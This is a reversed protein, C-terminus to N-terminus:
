YRAAPSGFKYNVRATILDTCLLTDDLAPWMCAASGSWSLFLDILFWVFLGARLRGKAMLSNLETLASILVEHHDPWGM